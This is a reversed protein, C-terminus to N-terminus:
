HLKVSTKHNVKLAASGTQVRAWVEPLLIIPKYYEDEYHIVEAFLSGFIVVLYMINFSAFYSHCTCVLRDRAVYPGDYLVPYFSQYM